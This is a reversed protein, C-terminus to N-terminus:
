GAKIAATKNNSLVVLDVLNAELQQIRDKLAEPKHKIKQLREIENEIREITAFITDQSMADAREGDVFTVTEIKIPKVPKDKTEPPIDSVVLEDHITYLVQKGLLLTGPPISRATTVRSTPPMMDWNSPGSNSYRGDLYFRSLIKKKIGGLEYHMWAKIPRRESPDISVIEYTGKKRFPGRDRVKFAQGHLTNEDENAM